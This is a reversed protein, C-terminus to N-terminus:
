IAGGNERMKIAGVMSLVIGIVIMVPLITGVLTGMTTNTGTVSTTGSTVNYFGTYGTLDTLGLPLLVGILIMAVVLGIVLQIKNDSM